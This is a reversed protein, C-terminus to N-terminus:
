QHLYRIQHAELIQSINRPLLIHHIARCPQLAGDCQIENRQNAFLDSEIHTLIQGIKHSAITTAKERLM